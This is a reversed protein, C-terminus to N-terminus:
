KRCEGKVTGFTGVKGMCLALTMLLVYAATSRPFSLTQISRWGQSNFFGRSGLGGADASGPVEYRLHFLRVQRVNKQLYLTM